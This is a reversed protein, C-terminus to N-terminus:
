RSPAERGAIRRGLTAISVYWVGSLIM